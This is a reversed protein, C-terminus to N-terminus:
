TGPVVESTIFEGYRQLVPVEILKRDTPFQSMVLLNCRMLVHSKVKYQHDRLIAHKQRIETFKFNISMQFSIEAIRQVTGDLMM